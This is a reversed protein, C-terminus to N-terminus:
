VVAAEAATKTKGFDDAFGAYSDYGV